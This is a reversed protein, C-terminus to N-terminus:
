VPAPENLECDSASTQWRGVAASGAARWLLRRWHSAVDFGALHRAARGRRCASSTGAATDFPRRSSAGDGGASIQGRRQRCAPVRRGGDGVFSLVVAGISALAAGIEAVVSGAAGGARLRGCGGPDAVARRRPHAARHAFRCISASPPPKLCAQSSRATTGGFGFSNKLAVDIPMDRRTPATTSDCEPDQNFINITPPLSTTCRWSRSCPSSGGRRGAPSGDDVQDLQRRHAAGGGSRWSSRTPRTSTASRTSTGHANLYDVQEANLRASRLANLM